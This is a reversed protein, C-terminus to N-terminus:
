RDLAVDNASVESNAPYLAAQMAQGLTEARYPKRLIARLGEAQMLALDADSLYGSSLVIRVDPRIKRMAQFCDRGNLRPMVMDLLVAAIEHHRARFLELAELGDVALLVTYGFSKLIDEATQRLLPEDDVVLILGAGARTGVVPQEQSVPDARNASPLRLRFCTGKGLESSVTISGAHQCVTGFVAALGLGTGRGVPKTTFFPEFIRPLIEPPIGHGTDRVEIELYPGPKIAFSSAACDGADLAINVTSITLEGGEPMAHAANIGLNIVASLLLASDGMVV